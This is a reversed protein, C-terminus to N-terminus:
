RGDAPLWGLISSAADLPLQRATGDATDLAWYTNAGASDVQRYFLYRGDPTWAAPGAAPDTAEVLQATKRAETDWVWIGLAGGTAEAPTRGQRLLYAIRQGDPSWVHGATHTDPQLSLRQRVPVAEDTLDYLVDVNVGREEDFLSTVALRGDPSPVIEGQGVVALTALLQGTSLDYRLAEEFTPVDEWAILLITSTASDAQLITLGARDALALGPRWTGDAVSVIGVDLSRGTKLAAADERDAITLLSRGDATWVLEPGLLFAPPADSVRRPAGGALDAVLIQGNAVYALQSGRVALSAVGGLSLTQRGAGGWGDGVFVREERLSVLSVEAPVPTPDLSGEPTPVIQTPELTPSPPLATADAPLSATPSAGAPPAPVGTAPRGSLASCGALLWSLVLAAALGARPMRIPRPPTM